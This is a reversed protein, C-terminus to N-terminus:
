SDVVQGFHLYVAGQSIVEPCKGPHGQPFVPRQDQLTDTDLVWAGMSVGVENVRRSESLSPREEETIM